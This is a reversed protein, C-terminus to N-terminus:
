YFLRMAGTPPIQYNVDCIYYQWKIVYSIAHLCNNLFDTVFCLYAYQSCLHIVCLHISRAVCATAIICFWM